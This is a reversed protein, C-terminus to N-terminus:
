KKGRQIWNQGCLKNWCIHCWCFDKERQSVLISVLLRMRSKKSLSQCVNKTLPSIFVTSGIVETVVLARHWLVSNQQVFSCPHTGSNKKFSLVLIALLNNNVTGAKICCAQWVGSSYSLGDQTESGQSLRRFAPTALCWRINESVSCFFWECLVLYCCSPPPKNNLFIWTIFTWKCPM